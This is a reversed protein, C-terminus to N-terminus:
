DPIAWAMIPRYSNKTNRVFLWFSMHALTYSLYVYTQCFNEYFNRSGQSYGCLGKIALFYLGHM